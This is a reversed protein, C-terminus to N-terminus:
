SIQYMDKFFPLDFTISRQAGCPKCQLDMRDYPSGDPAQHLAQMKVEYKEDGCTCRLRSVVSYERAIDSFHRLVPRERTQVYRDVMGLLHHVFAHEVEAVAPGPRDALMEEFSEFSGRVVYLVQFAVPRDPLEPTKKAMREGVSKLVKLDPTRKQRQVWGHLLERMAKLLAEDLRDVILIGEYSNVAFHEGTMSFYRQRLNVLSCAGALAAAASDVKRRLEELTLTIQRAEQDVIKLGQDPIQTREGM